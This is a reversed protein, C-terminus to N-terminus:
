FYSLVRGGPALNFCQWLDRRTRRGGPPMRAPATGVVPYGVPNGTACGAVALTLNFWRVGCRGREMRKAARHRQGAERDLADALTRLVAALERIPGRSLM